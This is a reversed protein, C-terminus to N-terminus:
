SQYNKLFKIVDGYMNIMVAEKSSFLVLNKIHHKKIELYYPMQFKRDMELVLPLDVRVDTLDIKYHDFKLHETLIQYGRDSLRLGGSKRINYWWTSLADVVTVGLESPLQAVLKETLQQKKHM